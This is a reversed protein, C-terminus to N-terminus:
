TPVSAASRMLGRLAALAVLYVAFAVVLVVSFGFTMGLITTVVSGIVSFFGNVAWAWAVYERPHPSLRAVAHVGFPMFM